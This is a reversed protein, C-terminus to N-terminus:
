TAKKQANRIIDYVSKVNDVLEFSPTKYSGMGSWRIGETWSATPGFTITGKGNSKSTFTIDSLTRLNLSKVGKVPFESLILVRDNTVGYYTKGRVISDGIFRGFIFYLGVVVFVGGFLLFFIPAGSKFASFEWFLAFGGWLLSFPILFADAGRLVVGRQPRGSWLLSEGASLEKQLKQTIEYDM